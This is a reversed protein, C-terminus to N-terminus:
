LKSKLYNIFSTCSMLFFKADAATLDPEELMAHRVGNEDNTYGYLKKFADLLAPHIKHKQEIYKLADGLTAKPKNTIIKVLSEVACISEKISNRYDPKKRDSLLELARQLHNSVSSFSTDRLAEELMEIEQKNTIDTFVDGVYRYASLERELTLNIANNIENEKFFQLTFELFDYVEYWPCSFFYNRIYNLTDESTLPRSDLPRKFYRVWLGTSYIDIGPNGYQSYLFKEKHWIFLDLINWLTNRLEENITDKQIIESVPTYGKRQSFRMPKRLELRGGLVKDNYM